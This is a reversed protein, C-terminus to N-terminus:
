GASHGTSRRSSGAVAPYRVFCRRRCLPEQAAVPGAPTWRPTTAGSNPRSELWSGRNTLRQSGQGDLCPKYTNRFNLNYNTASRFSSSHKRETVATGATARVIEPFQKHGIGKPIDFHFVGENQRGHNSSSGQGGTSFFFFGSGCGCRSGSSCRGRSSSRCRGGSGSGRGGSVGSRASGGGSRASSSCGSRGSGASSICGLASSIGGLTGGVGDLASSVSGLSSSGGDLLLREGAIAPFLWRLTAKKMPPRFPPPDSASGALEACPTPWWSTTM